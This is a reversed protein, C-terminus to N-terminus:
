RCKNTSNAFFLFFLSITTISMLIALGIWLIYAKAKQLKYTNYLARDRREDTIANSEGDDKNIIM